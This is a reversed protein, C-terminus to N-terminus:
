LVMYLAQQDRKVRTGTSDLHHWPSSALGEQVVQARRPMSLDQDKTDAM